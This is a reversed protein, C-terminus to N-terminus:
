LKQLNYAHAYMWRERETFYKQSSCQIPHLLPLRRVIRSQKEEWVEWYMLFASLSSALHSVASSSM